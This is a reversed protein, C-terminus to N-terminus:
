IKTNRGYADIKEQWTALADFIEEVVQDRQEYNYFRITTYDNSGTRYFISIYVRSGDHGTHINRIDPINIIYTNADVKIKLYTFM